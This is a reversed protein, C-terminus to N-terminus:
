RRGGKFHSRWRGKYAAIAPRMFPQAQTRYTPFEVYESYSAGSVVSGRVRRGEITVATRRIKSRLNGGQKDRSVLRFRKTTHDIGVNTVEQGARPGANILFLFRFSGVGRNTPQRTSLNSALARYQGPGKGFKVVNIATEDRGRVQRTVAFVRKKEPAFDVHFATVPANGRGKKTKRKRTPARSVADRQIEDISSDVGAAMIGTYRTLAEAKRLVLSGM